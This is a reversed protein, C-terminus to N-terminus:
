FVGGDLSGDDRDDTFSGADIHEELEFIRNQLDAIVTDSTSYTSIWDGNQYRYGKGDATLVSDGQSPTPYTRLIDAFTPVSPLWNTKINDMTNVLQQLTEGNSFYIRNASFDLSGMGTYDFTLEKENMSAHFYVIGVTYDVRYENQALESKNFVETLSTTGNKVKVKKNFEPVEKLRAFGDKVRITQTLPIFENPNRKFIYIPDVNPIYFSM